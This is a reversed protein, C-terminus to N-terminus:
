AKSGTKPQLSSSRSIKICPCFSTLVLMLFIAAIVATLASCLTQPASIVNLFKLIFFLHCNFVAIWILLMVQGILINIKSVSFPGATCTFLNANLTQPEIGKLKFLEPLNFALSEELKNIKNEYVEYWAKSGKATMIWLMSFIIGILALALAIENLQLVIVDDSYICVESFIKSLLMGYGGFIISLFATLFVSRQWLLKLELDRMQYLHSRIEKLSLGSGQNEISM